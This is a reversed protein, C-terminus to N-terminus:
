RDLISTQILFDQVPESQKELVEEILYDLVFHHGGTFAKIFGSNDQLGQMSIAALQLGAIWGETCTEMAAIDAASLDLGMVRNLFDVAESPTFRLDAARFETLQDPVRLRTMPLHPDVRTAIVIHIQPPLHELFFTLADEVQTSEITHYDDLDLIMEGPDAAMKNILSTLVDEIPPSQPSQFASLLGKAFNDKITRLATILYVLFRNPDNDNEDLSLWAIRDEIQGGKCDNSRLGEVWESVLTTKGFGAPASILTLKRHLGDNLREILRSRSVLKRRTLPIFLKTTLLQDV